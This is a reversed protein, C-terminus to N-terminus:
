AQGDADEYDDDTNDCRCRQQRQGDVRTLTTRSVPAATAVARSGYWHPAAHRTGVRVRADEGPDNACRATGPSSRADRHRVRQGAGGATTSAKIPPSPSPSPFNKMWVGGYM